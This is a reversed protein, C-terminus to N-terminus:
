GSLLTAPLLCIVLHRSYLSFLSRPCWFFSFPFLSFLNNKCRQPCSMPIHPIGSRASFSERRVRSCADSGFCKMPTPQRPSPVALKALRFTLATPGLGHELLLSGAHFKLGFHIVGPLHPMPLLPSPLLPMPSLKTHKMVITVQTIHSKLGSLRSNQTNASLNVARGRM